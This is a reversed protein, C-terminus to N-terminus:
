DLLNDNTAAIFYEMEKVLDIVFAQNEKIFTENQKAVMEVVTAIYFELIKKIKALEEQDAKSIFGEDIANLRDNLALLDESIQNVKEFYKM